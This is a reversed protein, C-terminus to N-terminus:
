EPEGATLGDRYEGSATWLADWDIPEPFLLDLLMTQKREILELRDHLLELSAEIRDLRSEPLARVIQPRGNADAALEYGQQRKAADAALDAAHHERIVSDMLERVADPEMFGKRALDTEKSFAPSDDPPPLPQPMRVELGQATANEAARVQHYERVALHYGSEAAQYMALTKDDGSEAAQKGAKDLIRKIGDVSSIKGPTISAWYRAFYGIGDQRDEQLKVWQAFTGMQIM